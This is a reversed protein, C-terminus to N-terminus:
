QATVWPHANRWATRLDMLDKVTDVQRFYGRHRYVTLEGSAALHPLVDGELDSALTLTDIARPEIVFFGGNVWHDLVPKEDFRVVRDGDLHLVGFQSRPQVATLTVPRQGSRHTRLLAQLDIDALGDTYTCFAPKHPPLLGQEWIARVRGGTPTDLGTFVARIRWPTRATQAWREVKQALYGTAIIFDTFGQSAFISMVHWILPRGDIDVLAKPVRESYDRIRLGQGGALILTTM